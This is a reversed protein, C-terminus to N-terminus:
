NPQILIQRRMLKLSKSNFVRQPKTPLDSLNIKKMLKIGDERFM